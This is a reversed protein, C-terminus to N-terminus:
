IQIIDKPNVETRIQINEFNFKEKQFEKNYNSNNSNKQFYEGVVVVEHPPIITKTERDLLNIQNNRQLSQKM